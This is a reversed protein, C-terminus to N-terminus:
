PQEMSSSDRLTTMIGGLVACARATRRFINLHEQLPSFDHTVRLHLQLLEPMVQVTKTKAFSTIFAPIMVGPYIIWNHSTVRIMFISLSVIIYKCIISVKLSLKRENDSFASTGTVTSQITESCFVACKGLLWIWIFRKTAYLQIATWLHTRWQIGWGQFGM